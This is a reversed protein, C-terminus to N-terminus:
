RWVLEKGAVKVQDGVKPQLKAEDKIQQKGLADGGSQDKELPIPALLLWATIFGEDNVGTEGGGPLVRGALGVLAVFALVMTVKRM